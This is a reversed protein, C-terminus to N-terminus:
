SVFYFIFPYYFFGCLFLFDYFFSFFLTSLCSVYNIQAGKHNNKM